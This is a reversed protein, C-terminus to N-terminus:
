KFFYEKRPPLFIFLKSGVQENVVVTTYELSNLQDLLLNLDTKSSEDDKYKFHILKSFCYKFKERDPCAFNAPVAMNTQNLPGFM